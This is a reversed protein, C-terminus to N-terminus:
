SSDGNQTPLTFVFCAGGGPNNEAWLKGGHATIITRCVPLGLGMGNPKTTIFPEFVREMQDPAIGCGHDGVTIRV